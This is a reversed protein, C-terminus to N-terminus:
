KKVEIVPVIGSGLDTVPQILSFIQGSSIIIQVDVETRINPSRLYWGGGFLPNKDQWGYNALAYDTSFKITESKSEQPDDSYNLFDRVEKASLLYVKDDTDECSYKNSPSAGYSKSSNDVHSILILNQSNDYFATQLFGRELYTDDIQNSKSYYSLGNLYARILSEKYNNPYVTMSNIQRLTTESDFFPIKATIIEKSILLVSNERDELIKWKIPEVKFYRYSNQKEKKVTEKNSYKFDDKRACELTKIYYNYDDGLFYTHGGIEKIQTEDVTVDDAKITRPWDGFYVYGDEAPTLKTHFKYLLPNEVEGVDETGSDVDLNCSLIFCCLIFLLVKKM